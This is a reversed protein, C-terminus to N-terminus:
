KKGEPSKVANRVVNRVIRNENSEGILSKVDDYLKPDNVLGGLTGNGQDIKGLIRDVKELSSGLRDNKFQRNIILVLQNIDKVLTSLGSALQDGKGLLTKLSSEPRSPIESGPHLQPSSLSGAAIAILKDGLVGETIVEAFSDAKISDEFQNSVRLNVRVSRDKRNLSFSEVQGANVGSITVKAGPSIGAADPVTIFFSDRQVFLNQARGLTWITVVTLALALAIFIGVRLDNRQDSKM